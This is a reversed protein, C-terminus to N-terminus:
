ECPVRATVQNGNMTFAINDISSYYWMNPMGNFPTTGASDTFLTQFRDSYVVKPKQNRGNMCAQMPDPFFGSSITYENLTVAPTYPTSAGVWGTASDWYKYSNEVSTGYWGSQAYGAAATGEVGQASETDNSGPAWLPTLFFSSADEPDYTCWVETESVANVPFANGPDPGQYFKIPGTRGRGVNVRPTYDLFGDINCVTAVRWESTLKNTYPLVNPYTGTNYPAVDLLHNFGIGSGNASISYFCWMGNNYPDMTLFGHFHYMKNNDGGMTFISPNHGKSVAVTGVGRLPVGATSSFFVTPPTFTTISSGSGTYQNGYKRGFSDITTVFYDVYTLADNVNARKCWPGRFVNLTYDYVQFAVYTDNTSNPNGNVLPQFVSLIRLKPPKNSGKFFNKGTYECGVTFTVNAQTEGYRDSAAYVVKTTFSQLTTIDSVTRGLNAM